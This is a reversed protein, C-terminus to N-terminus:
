KHNDRIFSELQSYILRSFEFAAQSAPLIKLGQRTVRPKPTISLGSLTFLKRLKGDPGLYGRDHLFESYYQSSRSLVRYVGAALHYNYNFPITQDRQSLITIKLRMFGMGKKHDGLM